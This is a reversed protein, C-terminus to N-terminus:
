SGCPIDARCQGPHAHAVAADLGLQPVEGLLRQRTCSLHVELGSVSLPATSKPLPPSFSAAGEQALRVGEARHAIGRPGPPSKGCELHTQFM